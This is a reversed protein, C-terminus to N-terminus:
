KRAQGNISYSRMFTMEGLEREFRRRLDAAIDPYGPLELAMEYRDFLGLLQALGRRVGKRALLTYFLVCSATAAPEFGVADYIPVARAVIGIDGGHDGIAVVEGRDNYAMRNPEDCTFGTEGVRVRWRDGEARFEIHLIV